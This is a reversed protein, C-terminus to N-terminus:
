REEASRNFDSMPPSAGSNGTGVPEGRKLKGRAYILGGLSTIMGAGWLGVVYKAREEEIADISDARTIVEDIKEGLPSFDPRGALDAKLTRLGQRLVLEETTAGARISFLLALLWICTVFIAVVSIVRTEKKM